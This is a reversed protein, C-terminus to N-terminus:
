RITDVISLLERLQRFSFVYESCPANRCDRWEAVIGARDLVNFPRADIGSARAFTIMALTNSEIQCM